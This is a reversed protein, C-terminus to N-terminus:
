VERDRYVVGNPPTQKETDEGNLEDKRCVSTCGGLSTGRLQLSVGDIQCGFNVVVAKLPKM